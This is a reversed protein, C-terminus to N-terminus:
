RNLMDLVDAALREAISFGTVRQLGSWGAM